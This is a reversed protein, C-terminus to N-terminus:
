GIWILKVKGIWILKVKEVGMLREKGILKLREKWVLMLREKLCASAETELDGEKDGEPLRLEGGLSDREGLGEILLEVGLM